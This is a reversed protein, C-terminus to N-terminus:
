QEIFHRKQLFVKKTWLWGFVSNKQKKWKEYWCLFLFFLFHVNKWFVRKQCGSSSGFLYNRVGVCFTLDQVLSQSLLRGFRPGLKVWFFWIKSWTKVRCCIYIGIVENSPDSKPKLFDLLLPFSSLSLCSFAFILFFVFCEFTFFGCM